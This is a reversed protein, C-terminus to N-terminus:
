RHDIEDDATGGDDVAEAVFGPAGVKGDLVAADDPDAGDRVLAGLRDIGVAEHERGADDVHVRM